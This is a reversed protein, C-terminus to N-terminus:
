EMRDLSSLGLFAYAIYFHVEHHSFSSNTSLPSSHTTAVNISAIIISEFRVVAVNILKPSFRKVAIDVQNAASSTTYIFQAVLITLKLTPRFM